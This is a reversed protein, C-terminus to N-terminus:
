YRVISRMRINLLLGVALYNSLLASGGFSMFPMPLGTIPMLGIVMAANILFQFGILGVIGVAILRGGNDVALRAVRLARWIIYLFLTFLAMGGVLGWQEEFVAFIFDTHQEPLFSLQAQHSALFGKGTLGGAGIAIKSQYLQYGSGKLDREPFIFAELRKKQYDKLVLSGAIGALVGCLVCILVLKRFSFGAVYILLLFIPVLIMATGLDPQKLILLLPIGTIIAPVILDRLGQHELSRDQFYRAIMMILALKLFEAPIFRPLFPLKLYRKVGEIPSTFLLYVLCLLIFGYFLWSYRLLISYDVSITILLVLLGLTLWLTQKLHYGTDLLCTASYISQIGVVTLIVVALLLKIDFNIILRRDFLSM